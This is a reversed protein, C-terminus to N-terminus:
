PGHKDPAQIYFTEPHPEGTVVTDIQEGMGFVWPFETGNYEGYAVINAKSERPKCVWAEALSSKVTENYAPVKEQLKVEERSCRLELNPSAPPCTTKKEGEKGGWRVNKCTMSQSELKMIMAGDKEQKTGHFIMKWTRTDTYSDDPYNERREFKGQDTVRVGSNELFAVTVTSEGSFNFACHGGCGYGWSIKSDFSMTSVVAELSKIASPANPANAQGGAPPAPGPAPEANATTKAHPTTSPESKCSVSGMVILAMASASFLRKGIGPMM